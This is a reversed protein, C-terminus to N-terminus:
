TIKSKLHSIFLFKISCSDTDTLILYLLCKIIHNKVYIARVDENPFCFIDIMDYVYAKLSIKSFMLTKGKIFRTTVKVTSNQKVAVSKISCSSKSDIDIISKVKIDMRAQKIREDYSTISCKKKQRQEKKKLQGVAEQDSAKKHKLHQIKAFRFPDEKQIKQMEDNFKKDTEKELLASNVFFSIKADFLSKHYNRLYSIKGIEDYIPEFVCNDLNNRCDYGFNANNLLKFFNKDIETLSEQRSKQNMLIFDRKFRAQEFYYHKYLKTVVRGCRTILFKLEELYIPIFTKPLLTSHFQPGIKKTKPKGKDTESYLECLQFVSRESADITKRKEIIPPFIENYMM